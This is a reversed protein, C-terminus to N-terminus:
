RFPNPECLEVETDGPKNWHPLNSQRWDETWRGDARQTALLWAATRRAAPLDGLGLFVYDLLTMVSMGTNSETGGGEEGRRRWGGDPNQDKTVTEPLSDGSGLLRRDRWSEFATGREAVFELAASDSM